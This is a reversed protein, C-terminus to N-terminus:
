FPPLSKNIARTLLQAGIVEHPMEPAGAGLKQLRRTNWHPAKERGLNEQKLMRGRSTRPGEAEM